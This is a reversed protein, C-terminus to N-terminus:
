PTGAPAPPCRGELVGRSADERVPSMARRVPHEQAVFRARHHAQVALAPRHPRASQAALHRHAGATAPSLTTTPVTAPSTAQRDSLSPVSRQRRPPSGGTSVGGTTSSAPWVTKRTAGSPATRARATSDPCSRQFRGAAGLAGAITSDKSGCTDTAGPSRAAGTNTASTSTTGSPEPSHASSARLPSGRQDRGTVSTTPSSESRSVTNTAVRGPRTSASDTFSPLVRQSCCNASPTVPGGARASPASHTPAPGDDSTPSDVPSPRSTARTASGEGSTPRTCTPSSSRSSTGVDPLSPRRTASLAGPQLGANVTRASVGSRVRGTTRPGSTNTSPSSPRTSAHRSRTGGGQASAVPAPAPPPTRTRTRATASEVYDLDRHFTEALRALAVLALVFCVAGVALAAHAVGLSGKLQGFATAAIVASGRVFNPVSTAVTARINTGFQEAAMTILVAWYGVSLGILFTLAYILAPTLGPMLGYVLVLAFWACLSFGVARKRSQLWQSLLGSSLDGLTLGVSGFLIANGATVTGQVHLGATLEPAFVFLIGTTFYIPVGM